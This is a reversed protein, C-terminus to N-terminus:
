AYITLLIELDPTELEQIFAAKHGLEEDRLCDCKVILELSTLFNHDAADCLM